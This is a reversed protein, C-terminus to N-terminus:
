SNDRGMLVSLVRAAGGGDVLTRATRSLSQRESASNALRTILQAMEDVAFRSGGAVLRAAGAAHLAKANAIQNEAVAVLVAPLGLACYEWCATGAASIALDAWSILEQMNTVNSLIRCRHRSEAVAGAISALHPNSGGAVVTVDLNEIAVQEIAEMARCTVNDPDSGGMTVLLKRGIPSIERPAAASVFERRLLAYRTGLLLRTHKERNQYLCEQAHINDNLVVDAAYTGSRGNDDILVVNLRENKLTRQYGSGFEYGDVIVWASGHTRALAVLQQGDFESGVVGYIRVLGVSEGRLREEIAPTSEAMVFTVCGGADQWAQALALCRMVHGTGIAVSADARILLAGPKM